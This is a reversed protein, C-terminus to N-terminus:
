KSSSLCPNQVAELLVMTHSWSSEVEEAGEWGASQAELCSWHAVVIQGEEEGDRPHHIQEVVAQAVVLPLALFAFDRRSCDDAVAVVAAATLLHQTQTQKTTLTIQRKHIVM